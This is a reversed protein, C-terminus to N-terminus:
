EVGMRDKWKDGIAEIATYLALATLMGDNLAKVIPDTSIMNWNVLSIVGTSLAILGYILINVEKKLEKHDFMLQNNKTLIELESAYRLKLHKCQRRKEMYFMLKIMLSISIRASIFAILLPVAIQDIKPYLTIFKTLFALGIISLILTMFLSVAFIEMYQIAKIFGCLRLIVAIIIIPIAIIVTLSTFIHCAVVKFKLLRKSSFVYWIRPLLLIAFSGILIFMYYFIYDVYQKENQVSILLVCGAATILMIVFAIVHNKRANRMGKIYELSYLSKIKDLVTESIGKSKGM